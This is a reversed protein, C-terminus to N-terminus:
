PGPSPRWHARVVLPGALPPAPATVWVRVADREGGRNGGPHQQSPAGRDSGAGMRCGEGDQEREGGGPERRHRQGFRSFARHKGPRHHQHRQCGGAGRDRGHPDSPGAAPQEWAQRRRGAPAHRHRAGHHLFGAGDLVAGSQHHQSHVPDRGGPPRPPGSLPRGDDESAVRSRGDARDRDAILEAQVRSDRRCGMGAPDADAVLRRDGQAPWVQLSPCRGARAQQPRALREAGRGTAAGPRAQRGLVGTQQDPHRKAVGRQEAGGEVTDELIRAEGVQEGGTTLVQRHQERCAEPEGGGEPGAPGREGSDADQQGDRERQEGAPLRAHQAGADHGGQDEGSDGGASAGAPATGEAEGHHEQQEGVGAEGGREAELQRDGGGGPDQPQAGGIARASGRHSGCGTRAAAPKASPAWAAASGAAASASPCSERAPRGAFRRASGSAVGGISRPTTAASAAGTTGGSATTAQRRAAGNRAARSATAWAAAWSGPAVTVRCPGARASGAM